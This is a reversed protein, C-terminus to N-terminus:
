VKKTQRKMEKRPTQDVAATGPNFAEELIEARTNQYSQVEARTVITALMRGEAKGRAVLSKALNLQTQKGDAVLSTVEESLEALESAYSRNQFVLLTSVNDNEDELEGDVVEPELDSLYESVEPSTRDSVFPQSNPQVKNKAWTTEAHETVSVRNKNKITKTKGKRDKKLKGTKADQDFVLTRTKQQFAALALVGTKTFQGNQILKDECWYYIWRIEPLWNRITKDSIGLLNATYAQSFLSGEPSQNMEEEIAKITEPFSNVTTPM